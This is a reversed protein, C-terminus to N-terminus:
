NGEPPDDDDRRGFSSRLRGFLSRGNDEDPPPVGLAGRLRPAAGPYRRLWDALQRADDPRLTAVLPELGDVDIKQQREILRLAAKLEGPRLGQAAIVSWASLHEPTLAEVVSVAGGWVAAAVIKRYAGGSLQGLARRWADRDKGRLLLMAHLEPSDAATAVESLARAEAEVPAPGGILALEVGVLENAIIRPSLGGPLRALYPWPNGLVRRQLLDRREAGLAVPCLALVRRAVATANLQAFARGFEEDVEGAGGSAGSLIADLRRADAEYATYYELRNPIAQRAVWREFPSDAAEPLQGGLVRRAAGDIQYLREARGPPGGGAWFPSDGRWEDGAVQTDFTLFARKAPPCLLFCIALARLMQEMTGVLAVMRRDARLDAARWGLRALAEVEAPSWGRAAELAQTQWTDPDAVALTKLPAEGTAWNGAGVAADMNAAFYRSLLLPLPCYALRRFEEASVILSHALYRGGRGFEDPEPVDVIQTVVARGGGLTHFQFKPRRTADPHYQAREELLLTEEASLGPTAYLTQFGGRGCPSQGKPVNAFLHQGVTVNM